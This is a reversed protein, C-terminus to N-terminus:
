DARPAPAATFYVLIPERDGAGDIAGIVAGIAAWGAAMMLAFGGKNTEALAYAQLVGGAAGILAGRRAKKGVQHNGLREIKAIASRPIVCWKDKVRLTLQTNEVVGVRGQTWSGAQNEIRVQTGSMLAQVKAWDGAQAHIHIPLCVVGIVACTAFRM